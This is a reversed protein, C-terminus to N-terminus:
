QGDAIGRGNLRARNRELALKRARQEADEWKEGDVDIGTNVVVGSPDDVDTEPTRIGYTANVRRKEAATLDVHGNESTHISGPAGGYEGWKDRPDRAMEM